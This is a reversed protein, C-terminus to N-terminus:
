DNTTGGYSQEAQEPEKPTGCWTCAGPISYIKYISAFYRDKTLEAYCEPCYYSAQGCKTTM